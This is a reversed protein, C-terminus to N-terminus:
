IRNRVCRDLSLKSNFPTRPQIFFFHLFSQLLVFIDNNRVCYSLLIWNQWQTESNCGLHFNDSFGLSFVEKTFKCSGEQIWYSHIMGKPFQIRPFEISRQIRSHLPYLAFAHINSVIYQPLLHTDDIKQYPHSLSFFFM